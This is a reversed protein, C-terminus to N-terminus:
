RLGSVIIAFVTGLGFGEGHNKIGPGRYGIIRRHIFAPSESLGQVLAEPVGVGDINGQRGHRAELDPPRGVEEVLGAAEVVEQRGHGQGDTFLGRIVDDAAPAVHEEVVPAEPTEDDPVPDLAHRGALPAQADKRSRTQRGQQPRGQSRVERAQFEQGADGARQSPRHGAVGPGEAPAEAVNELRGVDEPRVAGPPGKGPSIETESVPM